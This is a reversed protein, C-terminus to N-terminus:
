RCKEVEHHHVTVTRCLQTHRRPPGAEVVATKAHHRSHGKAGHRSGAKAKGAGRGAHSKAVHHAAAKHHHKVTTAAGAPAVGAIILLFALAVGARSTKLGNVLTGKSNIGPAIV